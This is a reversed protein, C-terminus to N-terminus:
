GRLRREREAPDIRWYRSGDSERGLLMHNFLERRATVFDDHALQAAIIQNVERETYIRGLEFREALYELVLLQDRSRTPFMTLRGRRDMFRRLDGASHRADEAQPRGDIRQRLARFTMAIQAPSLLYRKSAGEGRQEAIFLALGRLQRSATSQTLALRDQIEQATLEDQAAFLDLIQLRTEDALAELRLQLERQGIPSQRGLVAFNRPAHFFLWLTGESFLHTVYRGTHPSAVLCIRTAQPLLASAQSPLESAVFAHMNELLQESQSQSYHRLTSIVREHLPNLQQWEPALDRQWLHALHEVLTARLRDPEALLAHAAQLLEAGAAEVPLALEAWRSFAAPSALVDAPPAVRTLSALHALARDRLLEAPQAALDALYAPFDPWSDARVLAGAFVEFALTNTFREEASLAAAASQVWHPLAPMRSTASLLAMSNLVTLAPEIELSLPIDAPIAHLEM